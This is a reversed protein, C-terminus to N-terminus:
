LMLMTWLPQLLLSSTQYLNWTPRFAPTLFHGGAKIQGPRPWATGTERAALRELRHADM